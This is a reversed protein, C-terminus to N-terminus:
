RIPVNVDLLAISETEGSPLTIRLDVDPVPKYYWPSGDQKWDYAALYGFCKEGKCTGGSGNLALCWDTTCSQAEAHMETETQEESMTTLDVDDM